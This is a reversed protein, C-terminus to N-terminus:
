SNDYIRVSEFTSQVIYVFISFFKALAIISVSEVSAVLFSLAPSRNSVIFALNFDSWSLMSLSDSTTLFSCRLSSFEGSTYCITVMILFTTASIGSIVASSRYFPLSLVSSFSLYSSAMISCRLSCSFNPLIHFFTSFALFSSISFMFFYSSSDFSALWTM